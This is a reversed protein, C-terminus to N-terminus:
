APPRLDGRVLEREEITGTTTPEVADSGSKDEAM